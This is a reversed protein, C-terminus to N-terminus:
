TFSLIRSQSNLRGSQFKRRIYTHRSDPAVYCHVWTVSDEANNDIVTRCIRAGVEDQPISLGDPSEREILYRPM